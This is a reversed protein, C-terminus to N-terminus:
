DAFVGVPAGAVPAAMRFLGGLTPHAALMEAPKGERLSTVFLGGAAFCPMTPGPVPFDVTRLLTGEPSFCNVHGVSPAASWYNGDVDMAGGAPRGVEASVETVVRHGRMDGTAPDFDWAEIFSATSDSHYMTRGDPSWALGNSGAYGTARTEVRGDPTVRYLSATPRRPAQLDIGGVWFGGDPGVKGDNLRNSDPLDMVGTLEVMEGSVPDFLVVRDRLAVVLRGSRALGFSAVIEPFDWGSQVGGDIGYSLVRKGPIDAFLVRRNAADWVPSEGVGCRCDWVLEFKSM